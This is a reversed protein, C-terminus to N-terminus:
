NKREREAEKHWVGSKGENGKTPLITSPGTNDWTPKPTTGASGARPVTPKRKVNCEGPPIVPHLSLPWSPNREQIWEGYVDVRLMWPNAGQTFFAM